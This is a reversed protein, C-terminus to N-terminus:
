PRIGLKKRAIRGVYWTAVGTAVLGCGLLAWQLVGGNDLAARGSSGVFVELSTGPLIGLATGAVFHRLKVTTTGYFYNQVTFPVLPSLRMLAVAKWGAQHLTQDVAHLLANREFFKEVRGRIAYRALLFAAIAGGLSSGMAVFFGGALGFVAGAVVTLIWAPLLLLSALVYLGAYLLVGAAGKGQIWCEIWRAWDRLPLFWGAALLSVIVLALTIWALRRTKKQRRRM